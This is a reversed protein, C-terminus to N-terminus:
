ILHEMMMYGCVIVICLIMAVFTSLYGRLNGIGQLVGKIHASGDYNQM